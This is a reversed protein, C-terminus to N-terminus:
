QGFVSVGRLGEVLVADRKCATSGSCFGEATRDM